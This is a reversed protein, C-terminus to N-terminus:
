NWFEIEFAVISTMESRLQSLERRYPLEKGLRSEFSKNENWSKKAIIKHIHDQYIFFFYKLSYKFRWEPQLMM